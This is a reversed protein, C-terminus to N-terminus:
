QAGLTTWQQRLYEAAARLEPVNGTSLSFALTETKADKGSGTTKSLIGNAGVVWGNAINPSLGSAAEVDGRGLADALAQESQYFKLDYVLLFAQWARLQWLCAFRILCPYWLTHSFHQGVKFPGSGVPSTNLESFPFEEAFERKAV